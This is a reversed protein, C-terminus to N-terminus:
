ELESVKDFLVAPNDFFIKLLLLILSPLRCTDEGAAGTPFSMVTIIIIIDSPIHTEWTPSYMESPIHTEWTPPHM